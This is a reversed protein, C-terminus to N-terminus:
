QDREARAPEADLDREQPDAYALRGPMALQVETGQHLESWVEFRAGIGKARERMGRLGWHGERGTLFARDIGLGNDRVGCGCCARM